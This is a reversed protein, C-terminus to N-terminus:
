LPEVGTESGNFPWTVFCLQIILLLSCFVGECLVARGLVFCFRSVKSSVFVFIEKAIRQTFICNSLHGFNQPMCFLSVM